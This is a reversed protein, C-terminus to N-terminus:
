KKNKYKINFTIFQKFYNIDNFAKLFTNKDYMRKLPKIKIKEM